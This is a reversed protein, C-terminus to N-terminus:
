AKINRRAITDAGNKYADDDGSDDVEVDDDIHYPDDPDPDPEPEPEPNPDVPMGTDPDILWGTEPDILWGSARDIEYGTAPDYLKGTAPDTFRGTRADYIYGTDPDTLDGTAPDILYGTMPDIQWGSAPDIENGTERDYCVDHVPDYLWGTDPDILYGSEPDIEWGTLPDLLRRTRPDILWGTDPDILYGTKEDIQYGTEPDYHEGTEPDTLYGRKPDYIYGTEPDILEGTEPDILYSTKEDIEYRTEYDYRVGSKPDTLADTEPDYIFGTDREYIIGTVPDTCLGPKPGEQPAYGEDYEELVFVWGDAEWSKETWKKPPGDYDPDNSYEPFFEYYRTVHRDKFYLALSGNYAFVIEVPDEPKGKKDTDEGMDADLISPDDLIETPSDDQIGTLGSIGKVGKVGKVSAARTPAAASKSGSGAPPAIYFYGSASTGESGVTMEITNEDNDTTLETGSVFFYLTQSEDDEQVADSIGVAMAATGADDVRFIITHNESAPDWIAFSKQETTNVTQTGGVITLSTATKGGYYIDGSMEAGRTIRLRGAAPVAPSTETEYTLVTNDYQVMYILPDAYRVSVEQTDPATHDELYAPCYHFTVTFNEDLGVVDDYLKVRLTKTINRRKDKDNEFTQYTDFLESAPKTEDDEFTAPRVTPRDVPPDTGMQYSVDPSSPQDSDGSHRLYTVDQTLSATTSGTILNGSRSFTYSGAGSLRILADSNGVLAAATAKTFAATGDIFDVGKPVGYRYRVTETSFVENTAEAWALDSTMRGNAGIDLYMLYAGNMTTNGDNPVSGLAYEGKNVPIEYYYVSNSHWNSNGDTTKPKTIWDTDFLLTLGSVSVGDTTSGDAFLYVRDRGNSAEYIKKIEKIDTIKGPDAPDGRFIEHLSFFCNNNSYYTGAMFSIYGANKLRFDISNRPVQYNAIDATLIRAMPITVLDDKSITSNMFHLGYVSSNDSSLTAEMKEKVGKVSGKTFYNHFVNGDTAESIQHFGGAATHTYVTTLTNYPSSASGSISSKAYYSVRIAGHENFGSSVYYGTNNETSVTYDKNANDNVAIPFYTVPLTATVESTTTTGNYQLYGTESRDITRNYTHTENVSEISVTVANTTGSQRSFSSGNYGLYYNTSYHLHTGELYWRNNTSNSVYCPTTNGNRRLWMNTTDYLRFYTGDQTWKSANDRNAVVTANGASTTSNRYLYGYDAIKIYCYSETYGTSNSVMWGDNYFLVSANNATNYHLLDDDGFYWATSYQTSLTFASNNYRLYYKTSNNNFYTYITHATQDYLWVAASGSNQTDGVTGATGSSRTATLYHGNSKIKFGTFRYAPTVTAELDRDGNVYMYNYNGNNYSATHFTFSGISANNGTPTYIRYNSATNNRTDTPSGDILNGDTDYEYTRTITSTYNYASTNNIYINKLRTYLDKMPISDGFNQSIGPNEDDIAQNVLLAKGGEMYHETETLDQMVLSLYADTCAGVITYASTATGTLNVTSSAIGIGSLSANVKGAILGVASSSTANIVTTHDLKLDEIGNKDVLYSLSGDTDDRLIGNATAASGLGPVTAASTTGLVGFLGVGGATLYDSQSVAPTRVNTSAALDSYRDSITLNTITVGNGDLHGVFPYRDTGIPPLTWGTMDLVKTSPNVNEVGSEPLPEVCAGGSATDRNGDCMKFYYQRIQGPNKPDEENFLGLYQLWSLYYLHVPEHIIFPDEETGSGQEFYQLVIGTNITPKIQNRGGLWAFSAYCVAAGALLLCLFGCILKETRKMRM